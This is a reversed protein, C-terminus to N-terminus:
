HCDDPAQGGDGAGEGAAVRVQEADAPNDSQALGSVAGDTGCRDRAKEGVRIRLVTRPAKMAALVSPDTSPTTRPPNMACRHPQCAPKPRLRREPDEHERQEKRQDHAVVLRHGQGRHVVGAARVPKRGAGDDGFQEPRPRRDRHGADAGPQAQQHEGGGVGPQWAIRADAVPLQLRIAGSEHGATDNQEAPQACQHAAHTTRIAERGAKRTCPEIYRRDGCHQRRHRHDGGKRAELRPGQLERHERNAPQQHGAATPRVSATTM